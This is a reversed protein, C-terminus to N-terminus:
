PFVGERTLLPGVGRHGIGGRASAFQDLLAQIPDTVYTM